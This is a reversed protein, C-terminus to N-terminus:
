THLHHSDFSYLPILSCAFYQSHNVKELANGLGLKPTLPKSEAVLCSTSAGPPAFRPKKVANGLLQSPAASRRM